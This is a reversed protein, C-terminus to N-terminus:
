SGPIQGYARQCEQMAGDAVGESLLCSAAVRMGCPSSESVADHDLNASFRFQLADSRVLAICREWGCRGHN